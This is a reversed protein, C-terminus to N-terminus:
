NNSQFSTVSGLPISLYTTCYEVVEVKVVPVVVALTFPFGGTECNVVGVSAEFVQYQRTLALSAPPLVPGTLETRENINSAIGGAAGVIVEGVAPNRLVAIDEIDPVEPSDPKVICTNLPAVDKPM